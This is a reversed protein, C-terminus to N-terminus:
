TIDVDETGSNTITPNTVNEFDIIQQSGKNHKSRRCFYYDLPEVPRRRRYKKRRTWISVPPDIEVVDEDSDEM